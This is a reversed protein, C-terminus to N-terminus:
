TTAASPNSLRKKPKTATTTTLSRAMVPRM